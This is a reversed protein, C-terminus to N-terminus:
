VSTLPSFAVRSGVGEVQRGISSLTPDDSLMYSPTPKSKKIELADVRRAGGALCVTSQGQSAADFNIKPKLWPSMGHGDAGGLYGISRLGDGRVM